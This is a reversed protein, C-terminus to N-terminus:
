LEAVLAHEFPSCHAFASAISFAIFACSNTGFMILKPAASLAHSLPLLHSAHRSNSCLINRSSINVGSAIIILAAIPAHSFPIYHSFDSSNSYQIFGWLIIGFEKLRLMAMLEQSFPLCHSAARESKSCIRLIFNFYVTTQM